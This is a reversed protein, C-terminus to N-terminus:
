LDWMEVNQSEREKEDKMVQDLMCFLCKIVSAYHSLLDQITWIGAEDGGGM